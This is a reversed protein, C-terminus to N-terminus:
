VSEIFLCGMAIWFGIFSFGMEKEDINGGGV